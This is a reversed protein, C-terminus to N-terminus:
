INADTHGGVGAHADTAFPKKATGRPPLRSNRHLTLVFNKFQLTSIVFYRM